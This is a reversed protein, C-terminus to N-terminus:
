WHIYSKIEEMWTNGNRRHVDLSNIHNRAMKVANKDFDSTVDEPVYTSLMSIIYRKGEYKGLYMMVHGGIDLIDGPQLISIAENKNDYGHIHEINSADEIRMQYSSNRPLTYGFCLFIDRIYSSCDRLGGRGGWGYEDGWVGFALKLINRRTLPLYGIHAKKSDITGTLINVLYGEENRAPVYVKYNGESDIEQFHLKTGMFTKCSYSLKEEDKSEDVEIYCDNTVMLFNDNFFYNDWESKDEIIAINSQKTWGTFEITRVYYYEHSTDELLIIAPSNVKVFTEQLENYRIDLESDTFIDETPLDTLAAGQVVVGYRLSVEEEDLPLNCFSKYEELLEPSVKEGDLYFDRKELGILAMWERLWKGTIKEDITIVPNTLEKDKVTLTRDWDCKSNNLWFELSDTHSMNNFTTEMTIKEGVLRDVLLRGWGDPLSDSFVGFLGEFPDM